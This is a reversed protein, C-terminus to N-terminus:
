TAGTWFFISGSFHLSFVLLFSSSRISFKTKAFLYYKSKTQRHLCWKEEQKDMQNYFANPWNKEPCVNYANYMCSGVEKNFRFALVSELIMADRGEVGGELDTKRRKRKVAM